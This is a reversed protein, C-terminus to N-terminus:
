DRYADRRNIVHLVRMVGSASDLELRVRWNGARLRWGQGGQLKKFDGHRPDNALRRIAANIAARDADGIAALERRAQKSIQLKWPV